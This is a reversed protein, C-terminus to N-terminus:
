LIHMVTCVQRALFLEFCPRSTCILETLRMSTLDEMVGLAWSFVTQLADWFFYAECKPPLYLIKIDSLIHGGHKWGDETSGVIYWVCTVLHFGLGVVVVLAGIKMAPGIEIIVKAVARQMRAIRLLKTMKLLRLVKGM